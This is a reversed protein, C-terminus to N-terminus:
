ISHSNRPVRSFPRFYKWSWFTGWRDRLILWIKRQGPPNAQSITRILRQQEAENLRVMRMERGLLEAYDPFFTM